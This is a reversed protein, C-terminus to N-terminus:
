ESKKRTGLSVIAEEVLLRVVQKGDERHTLDSSNGAYM